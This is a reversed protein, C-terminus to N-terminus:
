EQGPCTVAQIRTLLVLGLGWRQRPLQKGMLGEGERTDGKGRRIRRGFFGKLSVTVVKWYRELNIRVDELLCKM